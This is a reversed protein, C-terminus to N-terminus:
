NSSFKLQLDNNVVEADTVVLPKLKNNFRELNSLNIAKTM